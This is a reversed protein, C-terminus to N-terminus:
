GTQVQRVSSQTGVFWALTKDALLLLCIRFGRAVFVFGQADRFGSSISKCVTGTRSLGSISVGSRETYTSYGFFGM